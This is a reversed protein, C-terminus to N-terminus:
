PAALRLRSFRYAVVALCGCIKAFENAQCAVSVTVAGLDAFGPLEGYDLLRKKCCEIPRAAAYPAVRVSRVLLTDAIPGDRGIAASCFKAPRNGWRISAYRVM